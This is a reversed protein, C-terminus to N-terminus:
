WVSNTLKYLPNEWYVALRREVMSTGNYFTETTKVDNITVDPPLVIQVRVDSLPVDSIWQPMFQMGYNGPNITDNNIM